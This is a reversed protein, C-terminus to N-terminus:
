KFKLMLHFWRVTKNKKVQVLNSCSVQALNPIATTLYDNLGLMSEWQQTKM